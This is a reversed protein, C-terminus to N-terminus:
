GPEPNGRDHEPNASRRTIAVCGGRTANHTLPVKRYVTQLVGPAISIADLHRAAEYRNTRQRVNCNARVVCVCVCVLSERWIRAYFEGTGPPGLPASGWQVLPCPCFRGARTKSRWSTACRGDDGLPVARACVCVCVCKCDVHHGRRLLCGTRKTGNRARPDARLQRAQVGGMEQQRGVPLHVLCEVPKGLRPHHHRHHHAPASTPLPPPPLPSARRRGPAPESHDLGPVRIGVLAKPSPPFPGFRDLGPLGGTPQGPQVTRLPGLYFPGVRAVL